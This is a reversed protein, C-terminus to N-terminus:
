LYPILFWPSPESCNLYHLSWQQIESHQERQKIPALFIEGCKSCHSRKAVGAYYLLFSISPLDAGSFFSCDNVLVCKAALLMDHWAFGHKSRKLCVGTEKRQSVFALFFFFFFGESLVFCFCGVFGFLCLMFWILDRVCWAGKIPGLLSVANAFLVKRAPKSKRKCMEPPISFKQIGCFSFKRHM